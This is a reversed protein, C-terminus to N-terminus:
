LLGDLLVIDTQTRAVAAYIHRSDRSWAVSRAIVVSRDGFDTVPRVPGDNTPVLWINTTAGDMLLTALSQGDPSISLSLHRAPLREGAVRFITESPASPPTARVFTTVGAGLIGVNSSVPQSLFLTTGDPSIAPIVIGSGERIFEEPGGDVPMREIRGPQVGLRWYYLWHGDGSFCPAWGQALPRLNSGDPALGWLAAQASESRVFAILDGRPSWLPLGIAVDPDTEFTIPRSGSGDIAAIWLNAHGGSDSVFVIEREDPSVSPVQVQGTQRTIRVTARTNEVPSGGIPFKWIDSRSIVRSAVLKGSAHVGPAVYSHDGFSLQRDDSGDRRVVRLNFVPPYLLSSGRSSSYVLGSGDALWDFGQLWAASVVERRAGNAVDIVDIHGDFGGHGLRQVAISRDDPAWRPPSYTGAPLLAVREARSGERTTLVLALQDGVSEFLAIQRGDHSIDGAGITAAVRRPWGGLAGIEWLTGNNSGAPPSTYYILTNSDPAWRPYLHDANDRTLQLPAGGALLRIWIQRRDAIVTVFAVMKGDPSIAPAENLGEFDTLRQFEVRRFRPRAQESLLHHEPQNFAEELEHRADGIDRLRQRADKELCWRMLRLVVAPTDTPVASWDPTRDLIAVITDSLTEGRFAIRGTLMEYLVCGFSWIDTRKDVAKGRAQEPSMYAATGLIVGARTGGTSITPSQTLDVIAGSDVPLPDLAKALGFDLVKVLGSGAVKINAPKLDRHVIGREHAAELAEIIQRAIALADATPVSGGAIREGLTEGEVLELVLAHVGAHEELGYITAINPHNLAALARAERDFRVLREADSRVAAPLIKLAVDRSLRTDHARYVEGMGGVGLLNTIRFAGFQTGSSLTV